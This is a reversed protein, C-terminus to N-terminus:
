NGNGPNKKDLEDKLYEPSDKVPPNIISTNVLAVKPKIELKEIIFSFIGAVKFGNSSFFVNSGM